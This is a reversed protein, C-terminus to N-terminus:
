KKDKVPECKLVEKGNGKHFEFNSDGNSDVYANAYCGINFEKSITGAVLSQSVKADIDLTILGNIALKKEEDSITLEAGFSASALVGGSISTGTISSLGAAVDVYFFADAGMTSTTSFNAYFDGGLLMEARVFGKVLIFDFDFDTNLIERDVVTYVGHLGNKDLTKSKYCRNRVNKNIHNNAVSWAQDTGEKGTYNGALFGLNYTGTLLGAVLYANCGGAVYFGSKGFRTSIQGSNLTVAGMTIPENISLEGTMEMTNFDFVQSMSGFPTKMGTVPMSDSKASVDGLVEFRTHTPAINESNEENSIMNGEYSLLGWDNNTVSMGGKSIELRYGQTSTAPSSFDSPAEVQSLQTIWDKRIAVEYNNKQAIFTAPMPNFTLNPKERVLGEISVQTEDIEIKKKNAVFHVFGKGEFDLDVNEFTPIQNEDNWNVNLLIDSVRPAGTNLLGTVIINSPGNFISIPEFEAVPNDFLFPKKDKQMLQVIMENNSLIEVYNLEIQYNNLKQLAPLKAVSYEGTGLLSFNWHPKMDSGVKYEYNLHASGENIDQLAIKGGAMTLNKLKYEDMLFMDSRLVFKGIPIDIIETKLLANTSLIGGETTSFTWNRAELDWDELKVTIPKSSSAPYVKNEDLILDPINVSFDEPKAHDIHCTLQTNLHIKGDKDIYSNKPEATADFNIVKFQIPDATSNCLYYAPTPQQRYLMISNEIEKRFTETKQFSKSLSENESFASTAVSVRNNVTSDANLRALFFESGKFNLYSSPYNFSNDVIQMKGSIKGYGDEKTIQLPTSNFLQPISAPQSFPSISNSGHNRVQNQGGSTLQVNYKGIYSLKLSTIGPITVANDHAVANAPGDDNKVLDFLVDEVRLVKINDKLTFDSIAETWHVLGTVKIQNQSVPTIKEITLPFGYLKNVIVDKFSTLNLTTQGQGKSILVQQKDGSVTFSTDLTAIINIKQNDVPIGKLSFKGLADTRTEILNADSTIEGSAKFQNPVVNGVVPQYQVSTGQSNPNELTNNGETGFNGVPLTNYNVSVIPTSTNNVEIYVRANKVPAGDLKVIGTIESGKELEVLIQKYDRSESNQVNVTKPIYGEGSPGRVIFTYNNVSVNEFLFKVTGNSATTKTEEGLQVTAGEVPSAPGVFGAPMKQVINFQIRHKRRYLKIEGLNIIDKTADNATLVYSTDFWAVDKPIFKVEVGAKPAIPMEFNGAFDITEEVKGSDAQIYSTVGNLVYIGFPNNNDANVLRGKITAAPLLAITPTAQTGALKLPANIVTPDKFGESKATVYVDKSNLTDLGFGSLPTQYAFLELYGYNDVAKFNEDIFSNENTSFGVRTSRSTGLPQGSLSDKVHVLIRSPLPVLVVDQTVTPIDPNAWDTNVDTFAQINVPASDYSGSGTNVYSSAKVLYNNREAQLLGTLWNTEGNGDVKQKKWLQEYEPNNASNNYMPSLLAAFTYEGDGEGLPLYQPKDGARYVTAQVQTVINKQQNEITKVKLKFEKVYHTITIPAATSEFPNLEIVEKSPYYYPARDGDIVIRFVRRFVQFKQPEDSSSNPPPEAMSPSPGHTNTNFFDDSSNIMGMTKEGMTKKVETVEYSQTNGNFQVNFTGGNFSNQFNGSEGSEYSGMSELFQNGIVEYPAPNIVGNGNRLAELEDEPTQGTIPPSSSGENHLLYGSGLDKKENLNIVDISFNGDSDTVGEGMTAYQDILPIIENTGDVQFATNEWHGGMIEALANSSNTVAGISKGNGDVYDVIVRFHTNALARKVGSNDSKWEYLLRGKINSTPPTCSIITYSSDVTRYYVDETNTNAPLELSFQMTEAVFKGSDVFNTLTSNENLNKIATVIQSNLAPTLERYKGATQAVQSNTNTAIFVSPGLLADLNPIALIKYEENPTNTSLLKDFTVYTSNNEHQTTSLAVVTIGTFPDRVPPNAPTLDGEFIPINDPKNVRYLVVPIGEAISEGGVTYSYQQTEDTTQNSSGQILPSTESQDLSVSVGSEDQVIKYKTFEKKVNLRLSYAYTKATLTGFNARIENSSAKVFLLPFDDDVYYNNALRIRFAVSDNEFYQEPVAVLSDLQGMSGTTVVTTAIKVYESGNLVETPSFIIESFANGLHNAIAPVPKKVVLADIIVEANSVPFVEPYNKFGYNIVANVPVKVMPTEDAIILFVFDQSEASIVQQNSSNYVDLKARYTVGDEFGANLADAKTLQVNNKILGTNDDKFFEKSYSFEKGTKNIKDISLVYRQLNNNAIVTQDDIELGSSITKAWCWNLLLDNSNNVELTDAEDTTKEQPSLFMLTSETDLLQGSGLGTTQTYTFWCIESAGGNRFHASGSPDEATVRMAYTYGNTMSVKNATLYTMTYLLTEEYLVPFKSTLFAENPDIQVNEPIEVLELHYNIGMMAGSPISWSVPINQSFNPDSKGGCYATTFFPPELNTIYFLNSCGMPNEGSLPQGTAYDFARVCIQYMGEPLGAGNLLENITTGEITIHNINFADSINDTNIIRTTGQQLTIPEVPKYDDDSFASVGNDGVIGLKLYLDIDPQTPSMHTLTVTIKNPITMYDSISSTYPPAVMISVSVPNMQALTFISWLIGGFLLIIRKGKHILFRKRAKFDSYM